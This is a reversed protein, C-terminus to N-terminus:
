GAPEQLRLVVWEAGPAKPHKQLILLMTFEVSFTWWSFHSGPWPWIPTFVANLVNGDNVQAFM